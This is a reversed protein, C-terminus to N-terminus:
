GGNLLKEVECEWTGEIRQGYETQGGTAQEGTLHIMQWRQETSYSDPIYDTRLFHFALGAREQDTNNARTGHATGYNFFIAGGAPLEVAVAQSDDVKTHIHHDSKPDRVHEFRQKYSGPVVRLTGNALTADHLAIWMGTAKTPDSIKFYANDTHWDTGAGTRAPKLFIQDLQRVFPTGILEGGCHQDFEFPELLFSQPAINCSIAISLGM